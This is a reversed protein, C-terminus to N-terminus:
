KRGRRRWSIGIRVRRRERGTWPDPNGEGDATKERRGGETSDFFYRLNNRSGCNPCSDIPPHYVLDGSFSDEKTDVEARKLKVELQLMEKQIAQMEAAEKQSTYVNEIREFFGKVPPRKGRWGCTCM